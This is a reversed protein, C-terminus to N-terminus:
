GERLGLKLTGTGSISLVDCLYGHAVYRSLQVPLPPSKKGSETGYRENYKSKFHRLNAATNRFHEHTVTRLLLETTTKGRDPVPLM